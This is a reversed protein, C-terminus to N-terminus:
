SVFDIDSEQLLKHVRKALIQHSLATPHVMDFFLFGDCATKPSIPNITSAIRLMSQASPGEVSSENCTDTVNTFGNLAPNDLMENLEAELNFQIWQVSPYKEKLKKINENLVLNHRQALASMETESEFERAAPIRGLDPLNLILFHKAGKEVLRELSSNIADNVEQTVKDVGEPVALYDNAGIWVVYLNNGDAVDQHALLYSDLESRLTFVSEDEDDRVSAGAFAYDLLKTKANGHFYSEAVLEIWVPGNSFRGKFYPPSLPFQHKMYQFLNGNDSLSDGFVVIKDLTAASVFTSFFLVLASLYARM